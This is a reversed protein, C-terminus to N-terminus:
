VQDLYERTSRHGTFKALPGSGSGRDKGLHNVRIQPDPDLRTNGRILGTLDAPLGSEHVARCTDRGREGAEAPLASDLGGSEGFSTESNGKAEM